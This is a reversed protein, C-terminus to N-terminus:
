ELIGFCKKNSDNNFVNTSSSLIKTSDTSKYKTSANEPNKASYLTFFFFLM